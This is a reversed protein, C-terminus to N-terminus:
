EIEILMQASSCVKWPEYIDLDMYDLNFLTNNQPHKYGYRQSDNQIRYDFYFCGCYGHYDHEKIIDFFDKFYNRGRNCSNVDNILIIFPKNDDKFKVVNKVLNEFFSNILHTQETNEFHSIVYQLIIVNAKSVTHANFYRIADDYVFKVGSITDSSYRSIKSHIPKWLSNIDIGCYYIKKYLNTDIVYQELAMLDPAAGCGISLIHYEQIEKLKESKRLLYLMESAYKNTYDCVYFNMLNYCDYDKKGYPYKSPYHIQALCKKCSGSCKSPHNCDRCLHTTDANRYESNCFEVIENILM